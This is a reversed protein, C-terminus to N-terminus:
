NVKVANKIKRMKEIFKKGKKNKIIERWLKTEREFISEIENIKPLNLHLESYFEPSSFAVNQVLAFLKKFSPGALKKLKRVNLNALTSGAALGIFHPIGLVVAMLQDHKKPSMETVNFGKKRLWNGFDKALIKEKRNTPTLFFNQSEARIEAAPGFLPHTGLILNKKLFRHMIQVPKEKLSSIDMVIQEKRLHSAIELIANGFDKLLVSILIFNASKVAEINDKALNVKLGKLKGQVRDSAFVEIGEKSFFDCFWSGMEGGAGIIAIKNIGSFAPYFKNKIEM